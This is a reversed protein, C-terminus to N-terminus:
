VVRKRRPRTGDNVDDEVKRAQELHEVYEAMGLRTRRIHTVLLLSADQANRNKIHGFLLRHEVVSIEITTPLLGYIRRYQRTTDWFGEIMRMLRPMAAGRFTAFHVLRDGEIYEMPDERAASEETRDILREILDLDEDSLHPISEALVMPEISERARYVEILESLDFSAVRAGVNPAITVLGEDALERLAQQVPVRSAGYREALTEQPLRVGPRIAGSLIAERLERAILAARPEKSEVVRLEVPTEV